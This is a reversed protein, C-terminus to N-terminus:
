AHLGHIFDKRFAIHYNYVHQTDGIFGLTAKSGYFKFNLSSGSFLIDLFFMMEEVPFM